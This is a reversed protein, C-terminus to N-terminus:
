GLIKKLRETDGWFALPEYDPYPYVGFNLKIGANRETLYNEVFQRVSVPEGSCVNIIGGSHETLTLAAIYQAVKEVPLYDRLQEGSSMDFSTRKEAIATELQGSLSTASQGKGFVYFLRLWNLRFPITQQLDELMLRLENKAQGYATCPKAPTTESLCGEQLGYEFCTGTVTVNKVGSEVMRKIFRYHLPLEREIHFREKYNPLGGWALHLLADYNGSPLDDLREAPCHFEPKIRLIHKGIFGNGGTLLISM